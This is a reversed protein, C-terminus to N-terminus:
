SSLTVLYDIFKSLPMGDNWRMILNGDRSPTIKPLRQYVVRLRGNIPGVDLTFVRWADGRHRKFRYAYIPMLGVRRCGDMMEQAQVALKESRSFRLVDSVSSKVEIPLSLDSRIAVLDVGLSGAGRIVMFPRERIRFYSDREDDDCTKTIRTLMNEDASLIGKLEREFIRGM